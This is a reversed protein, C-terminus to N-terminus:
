GIGGGGMHFGGGGGMHFGGGGGMHFGGGGGGGPGRADASMALLPGIAVTLAAIRVASPFRQFLSMNVELGSNAKRGNHEGHMKNKKCHLDVRTGVIDLAKYTVM